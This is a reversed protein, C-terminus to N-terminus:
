LYQGNGLAYANKSKKLFIIILKSAHKGKVSVLQSHSQFNQPSLSSPYCALNRFPNLSLINCDCLIRGLGGCLGPM